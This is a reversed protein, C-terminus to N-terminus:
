LIKSSNKKEYTEAFMTAYIRRKIEINEKVYLAIDGVEMIRKDM